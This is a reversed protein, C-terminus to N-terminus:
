IPWGCLEAEVVCGNVHKGGRRKCGGSEHLGYLSIENRFLALGEM